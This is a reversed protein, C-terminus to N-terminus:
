PEEILWGRYHVLTVGTPAKISVDFHFKGDKVYETADSRPLLSTPIPIGMCRGSKVPFRLTGDVVTLDLDFSILGFRERMGGTTPSLHSRFESKGFQRVWTEGNGNPIKFVSVATAESTPPFGFLAAAIRALIGTGRTVSSIGTYYRPVVAHHTARVGDDLYDFRRRLVTQFPPICQIRTQSTTIDLDAFCAEIQDLSVVGLAPYAGLPIEHLDRCAARVAMAPTYPGDGNKAIMTWTKRIFGEGDPLVIDVVMGGTGTGFPALLKAMTMMGSVLWKPVGFGFKGRMWSFAALGYRMVGLELGARFSVTPCDFHDPFLRQDPVEIRWAQRREQGLSFRRPESWSRVQVTKGGQVEQYSHGVQNLISEVVSRGRPAKNGPMIASDIMLPRQDDCLAAVVASSIAPVSSMGSVVAVGAAQAKSNLTSIGHCFDANDCLDFYHVGVDIAAAAIRYPDDGYAHFPGAADVVVDFDRLGDLAGNRDFPLHRFKDSVPATRTAITVVHGDRDLLDCLRAGFAGTGGIVLIKM